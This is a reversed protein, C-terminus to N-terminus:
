RRCETATSHPRPTGVSDITSCINSFATSHTPHVCMRSCQCRISRCPSPRFQGIDVQQAGQDFGFTAPTPQTRGHDRGDGLGLATTEGGVGAVGVGRLQQTIQQPDTGGLRTPSDFVGSRAAGRSIRSGARTRSLRPPHQRGCPSTRDTNGAGNPLSQCQPKGAGPRSRRESSREPRMRIRGRSRGASSATSRRHRVRRRATHPM